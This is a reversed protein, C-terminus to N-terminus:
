RTRARDSGVPIVIAAPGSCVGVTLADYNNSFTEFVVTQSHGALDVLTASGTGLHGGRRDSCYSLLIPWFVAGDLSGFQSVFGTSHIIHRVAETPNVSGPVRGDRPLRSVLGVLRADSPAHEVFRWLTSTITNGYRTALSRVADISPACDRIEQDFVRGLFLLRGAAFNAEAEIKVRCGATLSIDNDGLLAEDHWDLISHGIEHAETWRQKLLPIDHDLLIRKRDPLYLGRLELKRIVEFLLAPRRLVQKGAVRVRHITEQIASDDTSSYFARDLALLDRVVALDLPPEPNGLGRLVKEVHRDILLRTGTRVTVPVTM